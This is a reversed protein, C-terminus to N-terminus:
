RVRQYLVSVPDQHIVRWRSDGALHRALGRNPRVWVLGFSWKDDLAEWDDGGQLAKLYDEIFEVGFVEFRSDIFALRRPETMAEVMGGWDQEHFLPLEVPAKELAPLAALPWRAPGLKGLPAGLASAIVIGLTAVLPLGVGALLPEPTEQPKRVPFIGDLLRALMPAVAIGFIPSYRVTILGLHLWVLAHALDYILPRERSFKPLAVLAIITWELPGPILSGFRYPLFEESMKTLGSSFLLEYVHRYLDPGYPTLLPAACAAVFALCFARLQALRANDWAGSVAHGLTATAIILLGALFGGHCNAWLSMMPPIAWLARTKGRHAARCILFTALCFGWTLLHPRVLFHIQGVRSVLLGVLLITCFSSGDRRLQRALIWYLWALFASALVVVGSWGLGKFALALGADFLWSQDVWPTDARSYTLRDVFPVAGEDLIRRGVELHWFTDPDDLFSTTGSALAMVLVYAFVIEPAGVRLWTSPPM